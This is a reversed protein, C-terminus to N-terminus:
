WQTIDKVSNWQERETQCQDRQDCTECGTSGVEDRYLKPEQDTPQRAFLAAKVTRSGFIRTKGAM